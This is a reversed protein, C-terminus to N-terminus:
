GHGMSGKAIAIMASIAAVVIFILAPRILRPWVGLFNFSKTTEARFSKLEIVNFPYVVIFWAMWTMVVPLTFIDAIRKVALIKAMVDGSVEGYRTMYIVEPMARMFAATCILLFIARFSFLLSTPHSNFRDRWIDRAMWCWFILACVSICLLAHLALGYLVGSNDFSAPYPSQTTSYSTVRSAVDRAPATATLISFANPM